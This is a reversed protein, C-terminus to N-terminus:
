EELGTDRAWQELIAQPAINQKKAQELVMNIFDTVDRKAADAMTRVKGVNLNSPLWIEGVSDPTTDTNKYLLSRSTDPAVDANYSPIHGWLKEAIINGKATLATEEKDWKLRAAEGPTMALPRELRGANALTERIGARLAREELESMARPTQQRAMAAQDSAAQRSMGYEGSIIQGALSKIMDNMERQRWGEVQDTLAGRYGIDSLAQPIGMFTGINKQQTGALQSIVSPDVVGPGLKTATPAAQMIDAAQKITINGNKDIQGSVNPDGAKSIFSMLADAWGPTSLLRM